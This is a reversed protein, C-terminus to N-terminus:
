LNFVHIVGWEVVAALKCWPKDCEKLHLHRLLSIWLQCRSSYETSVSRCMQLSHILRLSRVARLALWSGERIFPCCCVSHSSGVFKSFAHACVCAFVVHVASTRRVFVSDKGMVITKCLIFLLYSKKTTPKVVSLERERKKCEEKAVPPHSQYCSGFQWM